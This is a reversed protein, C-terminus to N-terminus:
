KNNEEILKGLKNIQRNLLVCLKYIRNDSLGLIDQYKHLLEDYEYVIGDLKSIDIRRINKVTKIIEDFSLIEYFLRGKGSIVVEEEDYYAINLSNGNDFIPAVSLWELTKVDRIIGFNNLHRDENMILFDLIYMNEMMERANEIGNKELEAIYAEYDEISDYRKM